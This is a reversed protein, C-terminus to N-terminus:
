NASVLNIIKKFTLSFEGDDVINESMDEHTSIFDDNEDLEVQESLRRKKLPM